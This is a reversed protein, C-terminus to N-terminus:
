VEIRLKLYLAKTDENLLKSLKESAGVIELARTGLKKNSFDFKDINNKEVYIYGDKFSIFQMKEAILITNISLTLFSYYRKNFNLFYEVKSAIIDELSKPKTTKSKLYKTSQNHLLIPNILLVKSYDIKKFFRVVSLFAVLSIGVNNYIDNMRKKINRKGIINGALKL